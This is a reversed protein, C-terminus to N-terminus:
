RPACIMPSGPWCSRGARRTRAPARWRLNEATGAMENFAECVPAFEDKERYDIRYDLNGSGIEQVGDALITLPDNIKKFVFRILFRNTGWIAALVACLLILGTLVIVLKMGSPLEESRSGYVRIQYATGNIEKQTVSLSHEGASAQAQTGGLSEAAQLLRPM